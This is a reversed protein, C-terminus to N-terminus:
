KIVCRTIYTVKQGRYEEHKKITGTLFFHEGNEKAIDKTTFWNLINDHKDKFVYVFTYGFRGQYGGRKILTVEFSRREGVEGQNQNKQLLM